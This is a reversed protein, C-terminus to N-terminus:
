DCGGNTHTKWLFYWEGTKSQRRLYYNTKPKIPEDPPEITPITELDFLTNM